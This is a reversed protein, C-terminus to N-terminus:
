IANKGTSTTISNFLFSLFGFLIGVFLTLRKYLPFFNESYSMPKKVCLYLDYSWCCNWLINLILVMYAIAGELKCGFPLIGFDRNNYPTYEMNGFSLLYVLGVVMFRAANIAELILITLIIKRPHVLYEMDTLAKYRVYVIGSIQTIGMVFYALYQYKLM